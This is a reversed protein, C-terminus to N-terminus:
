HQYSRNGYSESRYLGNVNTWHRKSNMSVSASPAVLTWLIEPLRDDLDLGPRIEWQRVPARLAVRAKKVHTKASQDSEQWTNLIEKLRSRGTDRM